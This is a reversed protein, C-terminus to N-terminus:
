KTIFNDWNSIGTENQLLLQRVKYYIVEGLKYYSMGWDSILHIKELELLPQAMNFHLQM